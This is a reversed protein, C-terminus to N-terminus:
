GADGTVDEVGALADQAADLVFTHSPQWQLDVADGVKLAERAGTNQEFVTLEQGWPLKALYQTSVGVYSVDTVV